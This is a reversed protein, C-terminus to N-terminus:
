ISFLDKWKPLTKNISIVKRYLELKKGFEKCIVSQNLGAIGNEKILCEM